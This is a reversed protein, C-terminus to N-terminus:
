IDLTVQLSAGAATPFFLEQSVRQALAELLPLCHAAPNSDYLTQLEAQSVRSEPFEEHLLQLQITALSQATHEPTLWLACAFAQDVPREQVLPQPTASDSFVLLAATKDLLILPLVEMFGASISFDFASLSVSPACSGSAISWYGGPANHVSNHFQTPSLMRREQLLARCIQDHVVYDGGSSVFVGALKLADATRGGIADECAGFAIRVSDTARRRENSPLLAPKYPPLEQLLYPREQRLVAQSNEWGELGPAYLGVAELYVPGM